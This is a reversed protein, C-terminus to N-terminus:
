MMKDSRRRYIEDAYQATSHLMKCWLRAGESLNDDRAADFFVPTRIQLQHEAPPSVRHSNLTKGGTIGRKDGHFCSLNM